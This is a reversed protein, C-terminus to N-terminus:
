IVNMEQLYSVAHHINAFKYGTYDQLKKLINKNLDLRYSETYPLKSTAIGAYYQLVLMEQRKTFVEEKFYTVLQQKLLEQFKENLMENKLITAQIMRTESFNKATFPRIVSYFNAHTLVHNHEDVTLVKSQQLYWAPLDDQPFKVPLEVQYQTGMIEARSVQQMVSLRYAFGGYVFYPILFSRHVYKEFFTKHYIANSFPFKKDNEILPQISGESPNYLFRYVCNIQLCKQLTENIQEAGPFVKTGPQMTKFFAEINEVFFKQYIKEFAKKDATLKPKSM